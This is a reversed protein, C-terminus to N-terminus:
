AAVGEPAIAAKSQDYKEIGWALAYCCWVISHTYETFDHEFLDDFQWSGRATTHSLSHSFDFAAFQARDGGDELAGMVEDEVAEWLERRGDKDLTGREKAGRMWGVRYENIVRKFKEDDFEKVKGGHRGGDIAILKETWYGLNISLARGRSQNYARDHRFFEFMDTTRQFVYTGMDGTYCLIGPWTILDFHMCSTGPKAFRVHRSVGDERIVTMAHEAVDRLFREETCDASM